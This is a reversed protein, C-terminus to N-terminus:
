GRCYATSKEIAERMKASKAALEEKCLELEKSKGSLEEAYMNLEFRANNNKINLAGIHFLLVTIIGLLLSIPIYYKM